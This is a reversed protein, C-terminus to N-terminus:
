QRLFAPLAPALQAAHDGLWRAAEGVGKAAANRPAFTAKNILNIAPKTYLAAIAAPIGLVPNSMAAAIPATSMGAVMAATARKTTGSDPTTNHMVKRATRVLDDAYGKNTRKTAQFMRQPTLQGDAFDTVVQRMPALQAWAKNLAQLESAHAPNSDGIADRLSQRVQGLADALIGHDGGKPAYARIQKTLYTEADKLAQGAMGTRAANARNTFANRVIGEFQKQVTDPLTSVVQKADSLGRAFKGTFNMSLNPVLNDYAQGVANRAHDVIDEGGSVGDPLAQKINGLVRNGLVKEFTDTGAERARQIMDGVGWVGTLAEETKNLLRPLIGSQGYMLQGPTLNRVGADALSQVGKSLKPAVVGGLAKFAMAGLGSTVGGLLTDKVLGGTDRSNSLLAGGAMGQPIIGGPIMATPATGIVNGLAQYGTRSNNARMADNNAIADDASPFGLSQGFRDLADYGPINQAAAVLNDLPKLAGGFVGIARSDNQPNAVHARVARDMVDDPTDDPFELTTGDPLQAHRSM